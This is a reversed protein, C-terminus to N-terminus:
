PCLNSSRRHVTDIAERVEVTLSVHISDINSRLQAMTTAGILTSTVFPQANVFALAMQAMDLGHAAAIAHYAEIADEAGPKEYRQGRNFLTHRAGDPRAGGRYKGSLYGQALPSYALLGADERLAIEALAVEYTRNLLNYANQVGAVRPLGRTEALHLFRMTGWASENSLGVFRVKGAKVFGDLTELIEEIPHSEGAYDPARFVTPNSGWPMPRDPWHLQYVDVYDTRLRKLSKDLAESMQARSLEGPMRPDRFWDMASRGIV